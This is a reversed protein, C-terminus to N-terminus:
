LLGPTCGVNGLAAVALAALDHARGGQQHLVLIGGVVLDEDGHRSVDAAAAAVLANKCRHLGGCLLGSMFISLNESWAMIVLTLRRLRRFPITPPLPKTSAAWNM